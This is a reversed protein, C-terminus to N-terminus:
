ILMKKHHSSDRNAKQLAHWHPPSHQETPHCDLAVVVPAVNGAAAAVATGVTGAAEAVEAAGAADGSWLAVVGDAM